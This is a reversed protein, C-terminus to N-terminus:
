EKRRLAPWAKLLATEELALLDTEEDDDCGQIARVGMSTMLFHVKEATTDLGQERYVSLLEERSTVEILEM